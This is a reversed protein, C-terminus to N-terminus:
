ACFTISVWFLSGIELGLATIMSASVINEWKPKENWWFDCYDIKTNVEPTPSTCWLIGM